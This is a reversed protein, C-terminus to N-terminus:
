NLLSLATMGPVQSSWPVPDGYINLGRIVFFVITLNLGLGIRTMWQRCRDEPQFSMAGSHFFERTYDLAMVITALGRLADISPVRLKSQLGTNVFTAAENPRKEGSGWRM